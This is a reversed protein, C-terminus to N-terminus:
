NYATQHCALLNTFNGTPKASGDLLVREFSKLCPLDGQQVIEAAWLETAVTDEVIVSVIDKRVADKPLETSGDVVLRMLAAAETPTYDKPLMTLTSSSVVTIAVVPLECCTRRLAEVYDQKTAPKGTEEIPLVCGITGDRLIVYSIAPLTLQHHQEFVVNVRGIAHDLLKQTLDLM